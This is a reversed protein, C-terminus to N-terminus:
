AASLFAAAARCFARHAASASSAVRLLMERAGPQQLVDPSDKERAQAPYSGFDVAPTPLAAGRVQQALTKLLAAALKWKAFCHCREPETLQPDSLREWAAREMVLAVAYEALLKKRADDSPM